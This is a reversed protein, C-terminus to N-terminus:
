DYVEILDNMNVKGCAGLIFLYFIICAKFLCVFVCLIWHFFNMVPVQKILQGLPFNLSNRSDVAFSLFVNEAAKMPSMVWRTEVAVADGSVTAATWASLKCRWWLVLDSLDCVCRGRLTSRALASMQSSELVNWHCKCAQWGVNLMFVRTHARPGCCVSNGGVSRRYYLWKYCGYEVSQLMKNNKGSTWKFHKTEEVCVARKRERVKILCAKTLAKLSRCYM